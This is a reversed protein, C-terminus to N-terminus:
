PQEPAPAERQATDSPGPTDETHRQAPPLFPPWCPPALPGHEPARIRVPSISPHGVARLQARLAARRAAESVAAVEGADDPDDPDLGLAALAAAM